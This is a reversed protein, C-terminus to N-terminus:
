SRMLIILTGVCRAEPSVYCSRDLESKYNIIKPDFVNAFTVCIM